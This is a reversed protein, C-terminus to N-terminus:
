IKIKIEYASPEDAVAWGIWSPGQQQRTNFKNRLQNFLM